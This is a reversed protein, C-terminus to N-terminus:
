FDGCEADPIWIRSASLINKLFNADADVDLHIASSRISKYSKSPDCNFTLNLAADIRDQEFLLKPEPKNWLMIETENENKLYFSGHPNSYFYEEFSEDSQGHSMSHNMGVPLGHTKLYCKFAIPTNKRGYFLSFCNDTIDCLRKCEGVGVNSYIGIVGYENGITYDPSEDQTKTDKNNYETYLETCELIVDDRHTCSDDSMVVEATSCDSLKTANYTGDCNISKINIPSDIPVRYDM